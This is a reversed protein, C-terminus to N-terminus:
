GAPVPGSVPGAPCRRRRTAQARRPPPVVAGPGGVPPAREYKVPGNVHNASLGSLTQVGEIAAPPNKPMTSIVAFVVLGTVLAIGATLATIILILRNRRQRRHQDKHGALKQRIDAARQQKLGPSGPVPQSERGVGVAPRGSNKPRSM